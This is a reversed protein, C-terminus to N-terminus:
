LNSVLPTPTYIRMPNSKPKSNKPPTTLPHQTPHTPHRKTRKPPPKQKTIPPPNQPHPHRRQRPPRPTRRRRRRRATHQHLPPPPSQPDTQRHPTTPITKRPRHHHPPTHPHTPTQPLTPTHPYSRQRQPRYKRHRHHTRSHPTTPNQHQTNQPPPPPRRQSQPPHTRHSKRYTLPYLRQQLLAPHIPTRPPKQRRPPRHHRHNPTRRHPPPTTQHLPPPHRRKRRHPQRQRAKTPRRSPLTQPQPGPHTQPRTRRHPRRPPGIKLLLERTASRLRANTHDFCAELEPAPKTIHHALRTLAHVIYTKHLTSTANRLANHLHPVATPGLRKLANASNYRLSSSSHLLLPILLPIADKAAPGISGIIRITRQQTSNKTGPQKLYQLLTPIASKALPGLNQLSQYAAYALNNQPNRLLSLMLKITDPDHAKIHGLTLLAHRQVKPNTDKVLPRITPATHHAYKRLRSLARLAPIKAHNTSLLTAISTAIERTRKPNHTRQQIAATRLSYLAASQVKPQPDQLTKQLPPIAEPPIPNCRAITLAAARRIQSKTSQLAHLLPKPHSAGIQALTSLALSRQWSNDNYAQLLPKISPSGIQILAWRAHKRVPGSRRDYMAKTLDKVTSKAPTGIRGLEKAALARQQWQPSQLQLSLARLRAQLEKRQQQEKRIAPNTCCLLLSLLALLPTLRLHM